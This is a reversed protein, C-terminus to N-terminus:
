SHGNYSLVQQIGSPRNTYAMTVLPLPTFKIQEKTASSHWNAPDAGQTKALTDGAAKLAAWMDASCTKVDGKGCYTTSYKQKVKQGLLTKFDKLMYQHWGGYQGGPPAEFVSQLEKQLITCIKTTLRPCLASTAMQTFATDMIAAGPADILGDGNTDLRTGGQDHWQQLLDVMQQERASPATGKALMDKLVPWLVVARVDNTAAANMAGTVTALTNKDHRNLEALLMQQRQIPGESWREDSAPYNKQPKNNWNVIIGNKPDEGQAHKSSALFGTWEYKGRGDIPLDGTSDKKRLPLRGSTYFGIHKDDAYFSNFTQPTLAAAKKYDAFSKVSGDTLAQNYLLDTADRGYSSRKQALAVLKGGKRAKAYGQVPGHVTTRFTADISKGGIQLTGAKFTGMKVCKGKYVYKTKSGGCLTEAYTDIIDSGASTLTWGFNGDRGILMYGPFPASTAGIVDRNPGHLGIESTLGPFFYSIQPGGVFLPHGTATRSGSVLLINSAQHQRQAATARTAAQARRSAKEMPSSSAFSGNRIGVNGTFKSPQSQWPASKDSYSVESDPDNRSRFDNWMARGKKAGFKQTLADYMDANAVERGGGEGLFQGKIANASYIDVRTFKATAPENKTFWANIGEIYVDIDHLLQKGRAGQALIASTQTKEVFDNTEKSPKFNSLTSLLTIASVGPVGVAATLGVYRAQKLLLGRDEATVWGAGWTVDDNTTGYVYPVAYETRKITVGAKPTETQSEVFAGPQNQLTSPLAESKFYKGPALDDDSVNRYLPTLADYMKAQFDFAGRPYPAPDQGTELQGSPIINLATTAFDAAGASAPALAAVAAVAAVVAAKLGQM